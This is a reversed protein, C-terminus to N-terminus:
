HRTAARQLVLSVQRDQIWHGPTGLSCAYATAVLVSGGIMNGLTAPILNHGM